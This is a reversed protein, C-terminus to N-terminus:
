VKAYEKNKEKLLEALPFDKILDLNAVVCHGAIEGPIHRLNPRIFEPFGLEKYGRNYDENNESYVKEFPLDNRECWAHIEKEIMINLGYYTTSILKMAETIDARVYCSTKIGRSRFPLSCVYADGGGFYKTFTKISEVLDPHRGTVPSHVAGCINSTGIKVTSHIITYDPAYTDQYEKVQEVFKDSFPFCIHLFKYTKRPAIEDKDIGDCQLITAIASGVEGIGCVLSSASDTKKM